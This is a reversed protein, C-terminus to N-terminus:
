EHSKNILEEYTKLNNIYEKAQQEPSGSRPPHNLHYVGCELIPVVFSGGAILRSGFYTDELGWGVFKGSFGGVKTFLDKKLSMNHGVVMSPLDYGNIM